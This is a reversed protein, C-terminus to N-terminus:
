LHADWIDAPNHGLKTGGGAAPRHGHATIDDALAFPDSPRPKSPTGRGCMEAAPALRLAVSRNQRGGPVVLIKRPCPRPDEIPSSWICVLVDAASM